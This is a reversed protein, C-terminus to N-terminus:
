LRFEIELCAKSFLLKTCLYPLTVSKDEQNLFISKIKCYKQLDHRAIGDFTHM